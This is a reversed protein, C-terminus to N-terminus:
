LVFTIIIQQIMGCNNRMSRSIEMCHQITEWAPEVIVSNYYPYM